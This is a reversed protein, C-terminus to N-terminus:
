EPPPSGAIAPTGVGSESAAPPVLEFVEFTYAGSDASGEIAVYYTGAPLDFFEMESRTGDDGCLDDNSGLEDGCCRTGVAMWTDFGSRCLSFAWWGQWPITVKYIHDSTPQLECDNGGSFTTGTWVGPATVVHDPSCPPIECENVILDFEPICDLLRFSDVMVYYVGPEVHFCGTSHVQGTTDASYAICAESPPCQEGFAVGTWATGKPDLVVEVDAPEDFVLEYIADERADFFLLCTDQYDDGRGCTTQDAFVIPLDVPQGDGIPHQCDNGPSPCPNPECSMGPLFCYGGAATCAEGTMVECWGGELCCAGFPTVIEWVDIVYEGCGSGYGDVIIYYTHGAEMAVTPLESVFGPCADDNCDILTGPCGGEYVFLKTDYASGNCLSISVFMDAAPTFEYVADPAAAAWPCDEDYQDAFDCSNAADTFPLATIVMADDCTDGAVPLGPGGSAALETTRQKYPARDAAVAAYAVLLATTFLLSGVTLITKHHKM